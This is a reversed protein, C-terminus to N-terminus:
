LKFKLPKAGESTAIYLGAPLHGLAVTAANGSVTAKEIVRGTLDTVTILRGAESASWSTLIRGSIGLRNTDTPPFGIATSVDALKLAETIGAYPRMWGRGNRPDDANEMGTTANTNLIIDQVDESTLGPNAELWTAICGAVYPSAMSTGGMPGWYYDQGDRTVKHCLENIYDSYCAEVWHSSVASILWAGPAVTLPMVRGDALTGYSSDPHVANEQSDSEEFSGDLHPGRNRNYYMGVSIVNKATALDSISRQSGSSPYGSWDYFRTGVKDAYLDAKVGPQGTAEIAFVYRAWTKGTVTAECHTDYEVTVYRRGNHKSLGGYIHLTGQLYKAFEPIESTNYTMDFDESCDAVPFSYVIKEPSNWAAEEDLIHMTVEFPQGDDSWCDTAGYMDVQRWDSSGIRTRYSTRSDSFTCRMVNNTNGENGASMCVVAERGILDLYRCFMSTGDHPGTYSSVSMNIVARKGQSKAYELIDEAGALLGVDYLSSTTAVIDADPAMGTYPSDACYGALIGGVHTAHFNEVNDTSWAKIEEPTELLTRKAHVEDYHTLRKVRPNGEADQFAIHNPDFGIDCFGVVVGKGTYPSPLGEGANIKYADFYNRAVDLTPMARRSPEVNRIGQMRRIKKPAESASGYASRPICILAMHSNDAERTRFVVTGHAVLEDLDSPSEYEVLAPIYEPETEEAYGKYTFLLSFIATAILIKTLKM